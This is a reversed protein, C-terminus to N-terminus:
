KTKNITSLHKKDNFGQIYGLLYNKEESNMKDTKEFVEKLIKKKEEMKM